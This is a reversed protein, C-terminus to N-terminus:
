FHTNYFWFFTVKSTKHSDCCSLCSELKCLFMHQTATRLGPNSFSWCPSSNWRCILSFSHCYGLRKLAFQRWLLQQVTTLTVMTSFPNCNFQWSLNKTLCQLANNINDSDNDNDNNKMPRTWQKNDNNNNHMTTTIWKIWQENHDNHITVDWKTQQWIIAKKQMTCKKLQNHM